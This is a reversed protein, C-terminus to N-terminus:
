TVQGLTIAGIVPTQFSSATKSLQLNATSGNITVNQADIVGDVSLAAVTIQAIFVIDDGFPISDIYQAIRDKVQASIVEFSSGSKIRLEAAINLPLNTSTGATVTHGIPALGDGNAGYLSQVTDILEQSAALGQTDGIILMVTGAGDWVPFVEVAGVGDIALTQQEYDAINGGFPQQRVAAYFRERLQEDSEEDQGQILVEELTASGLESISDIPFLEGTLLNPANGAQEAQAKYIGEGAEEIVKFTYGEMGFRVGAPLDLPQGQTDMVTITRLANTAQRRDIGFASANLDLFEETATDPYALNIGWALVYYAQAIAWAVPGLLTYFFSGERKDYRDPLRNLMSQLIQEYEM